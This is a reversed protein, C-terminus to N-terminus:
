SHAAGGSSSPLLRPTGRGGAPDLEIWFTAGGETNAQVGVVGGMREVARRVLALGLGVGPYAEYPHLREFVGFVREHYEPAIGIGNDQVSLRASSGQAEVQILIHPPVGPTVFKLANALLHDVTLLLLSPDALARVPSAQIEVNAGSSLIEKKRLEVVERVIEPLDVPVRQFSQYSLRALSLIGQILDDMRVAAKRIRRLQDRGFDDLEQAYEEVLLDSFGAMARLPARLDHAVTYAFGEIERTRERVKKELHENLDRIEAEARALQRLTRTSFYFLVTAMLAAVGGLAAVLLTTSRADNRSLIAMDTLLREKERVFDGLAVQLAERKPRVKEEFLDAVQGANGNTREASIAQDLAAQHADAAEIVHSLFRAEAPLPTTAKLDEATTTFRRRAQRAKGLYRPDGTLLFARSSSANQESALELERTLELDHAYESIVHDKAAIVSWLAALSAIGVTAALFVVFAFGITIRRRFDKTHSPLSRLDADRNM